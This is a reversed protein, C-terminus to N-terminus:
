SSNIRCADSDLDERLTGLSDPNLEVYQSLHSLNRNQHYYADKTVIGGSIEAGNYDTVRLKLLISQVFFEEKFRQIKYLSEVRDDSNDWITYNLDFRVETSDYVINRWDPFQFFVEYIRAKGTESDYYVAVRCGKGGIYREEFYLLSDGNTKMLSMKKPLYNGAEATLQQAQRKLSAANPLEPSEEEFYHSNQTLGEIENSSSVMRNIQWGFAAQQEVLPDLELNNENPSSIKQCGFLFIGVLSIGVLLNIIRM